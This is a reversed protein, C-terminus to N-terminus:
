DDPSHELIGVILMWGIFYLCLACGAIVLIQRWRYPLKALDPTNPEVVRELYFQQRQADARAQELSANTATLMQTAFEQEVLLNEYSGLKSAIGTSTGVVRGNQTAIQQGIAQIRTRLSPIAPNNPTTREMLELQARLAAQEAVLKNSLDLVGGAQKAPDILEEQNRYVSLAQRARLVRSQATRVRDEAESIAKYQARENLGNVLQESLDLLRANLDHAERASFAKVTLVAVGTEHDVSVNVYNSYFRFLNEFRDRGLLPPYRTLFDANPSAYIARVDLRKQVQRLADRSRIYDLVENTQEQGSSLGTTQILNALTSVTAQRQNPNKVVFRSESTFIDAAILGYYIAGCLTPLIVFLLFWRRAYLANRLRAGLEEKALGDSVFKEHLMM